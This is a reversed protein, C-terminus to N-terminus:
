RHHAYRCILMFVGGKDVIAHGPEKVNWRLTSGSVFARSEGRTILDGASRHARLSQDFLLTKVAM